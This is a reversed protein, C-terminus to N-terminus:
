AKASCNVPLRTEPHGSGAAAFWGAQVDEVRRGTRGDRVM